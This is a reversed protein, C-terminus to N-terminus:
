LWSSAVKDRGSELLARLGDRLDVAAEFDLRDAAKSVDARSRAVDGERAEAHAISPSTPALSRVLDALERITVSEGTAVNFAEGVADTRAALRTARVVDRVHVFDRTQDGEGHVVLSDGARAREVFTSVVAGYDSRAQRPGYVNFYRLSVTPLDYLDAYARVYHDAALKGIGYPSTPAKPETEDVPLSTPQGYVAASSAYVVRADATRARELVAVTGTVNTRHARRPDAVSDPVSVQAALHCVVDVGDMAAALVSPDTVSGRYLEVGEPVNAARGSSLDDLVRVETDACLAEVLHSGVFGAGGTVLVTRGALGESM